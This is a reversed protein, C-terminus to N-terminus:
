CSQIAGRYREALPINKERRAKIQIEALTMTSTILDDKRTLMRSRLEFTAQFFEPDRDFLYIFLNTDWFIRSV